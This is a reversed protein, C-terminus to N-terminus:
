VPAQSQQIGCVPSKNSIIVEAGNVVPAWRIGKEMIPADLIEKVDQLSLLLIFTSVTM